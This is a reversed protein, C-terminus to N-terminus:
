HISLLEYQKLNISQKFVFGMKDYICCYNICCIQRINIAKPNLSLFFVHQNIPKGCKAPLKLVHIVLYYFKALYNFHTFNLWYFNFFRDHYKCTTLNSQNLHRWEVNVEQMEM